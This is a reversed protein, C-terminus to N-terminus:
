QRGGALEESWRDIVADRSPDTYLRESVTFSTVGPQESRVILHPPSATAMPPVGLAVRIRRGDVALLLRGLLQFGRAHILTAIALRLLERNGALRLLEEFVVEACLTRAARVDGHGALLRAAELRERVAQDTPRDDIGMPVSRRRDHDLVDSGAHGDATYLQQM